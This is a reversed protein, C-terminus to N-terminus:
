EIKIVTSDNIIHEDNTISELYVTYYGDNANNFETDNIKNVWFIYSDDVLSGQRTVQSTEIEAIDFDLLNVGKKITDTQYLIDKDFFLRTNTFDIPEFIGEVSSEFDEFDLRSELKISVPRDNFIENVEWGGAKGVPYFRSHYYEANKKCSCLIFIIAVFILKRM